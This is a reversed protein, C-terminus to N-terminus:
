SGLWEIGEQDMLDSGCWWCGVVDEEPVEPPQHLAGEPDEQYHKWFNMCVRSCFGYADGEKDTYIIVSL